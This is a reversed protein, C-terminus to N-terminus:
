VGGRFYYMALIRVAMPAAGLLCAGGGWEDGSTGNKKKHLQEAPQVALVSLFDLNDREGATPFSGRGLLALCFLLPCVVFETSSRSARPFPAPRHRHHHRQVRELRVHPAHQVRVIVGVAQRESPLPDLLQADRLTQHFAELNESSVRYFSSPAINTRYQHQSSRQLYQETVQTAVDITNHSQRESAPGRTPLVRPTSHNFGMCTRAFLTLQYNSYSRTTNQPPTNPFLEHM